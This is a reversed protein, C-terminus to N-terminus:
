TRCSSLRKTPLTVSQPPLRAKPPPSVSFGSRPRDSWRAPAPHGDIYRLPNMVRDQSYMARFGYRGRDCLWGDDIQDNERDLM